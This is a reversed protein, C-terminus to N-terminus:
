PRLPGRVFVDWTRNTDRAVLNTSQSQFAAFRGDGTIAAAVSHSDGQTSTNSVSVRTTTKAQTDHVFVDRVPVGSQENTDGSVLNSAFSTFAVHRGSGSIAAGFSPANEPEGGEGVSIRETTNTRLDRRFIGGTGNSDGTALDLASQFAVYRGDASISPGDNFGVSRQQPPSSVSVTKTKATKMDRVFVDEIDNTDGAVLNSASSLFAVMRGNGSISPTTSHGNPRGGTRSVTVRQTRNKKLDRVYLDGTAGNKDLGAFAVYRGNASLSPIVGGHSGNPTISALRTTKRTLDRVFVDYRKNRDDRTLNRARSQFAVVRGSASIDASESRAWAQRGTASVSARTAKGTSLDRVFIDSNHNTDRPVLRHNYSTFVVYRGSSSLAPAYSPRHPQADGSSVSVRKTRTPEPAAAALAVPLAACALAALTSSLRTGAV